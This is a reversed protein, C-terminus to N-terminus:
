VAPFFLRRMEYVIFGLNIYLIIYFIVTLIFRGRWWRSRAPTIMQIGKSEHVRDLIAENQDRIEFDRIVLRRIFVVILTGLLLAGLAIGGPRSLASALVGAEVAMLAQTRSWAMQDQYLYYTVLHRYIEADPINPTWQEEPRESM